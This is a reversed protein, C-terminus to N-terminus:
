YVHFVNEILRLRFCHINSCKEQKTEASCIDCVIQFDFSYDRNIGNKWIRGSSFVFIYFYINTLFLFHVPMTYIFSQDSPFSSFRCVALQIVRGTKKTKKNGNLSMGIKPHPIYSIIKILALYSTVFCVINPTSYRVSM